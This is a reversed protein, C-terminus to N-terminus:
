YGLREVVSSVATEATIRMLKVTDLDMVEYALLALGALIGLGFVALCVYYVWGYGRFFSRTEALSTTAALYHGEPVDGLMLVDETHHTLHNRIRREIRSLSEHIQALRYPSFEQRAVNIALRIQTTNNGVPTLRSVGVRMHLHRQIKMELESLKLSQLATAIQAGLPDSFPVIEDGRMLVLNCDYIATPM